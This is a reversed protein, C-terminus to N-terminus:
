KKIYYGIELLKEYWLKSIKFNIWSNRIIEPPTYKYSDKGSPTSYFIPSHKNIGFPGITMNEEIYKLFESSIEPYIDSKLYQFNTYILNAENTYMELLTSNDPQKIKASKGFIEDKFYNFLQDFDTFSTNTEPVLESM